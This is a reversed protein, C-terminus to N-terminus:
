EAGSATSLLCSQLLVEDRLRGESFFSSSLSERRTSTLVTERAERFCSQTLLFSFSFLLSRSSAHLCSNLPSSSDMKSQPRLLKHWQCLFAVLSTWIQRRRVIVGPHQIQSVLNQHTICQRKLNITILAVIWAIGFSISDSTCIPSSDCM